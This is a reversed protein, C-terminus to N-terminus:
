RLVGTGRSAKITRFNFHFQPTATESIECVQKAEHMVLAKFLLMYRDLKTALPM